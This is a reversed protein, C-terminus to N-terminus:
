HLIGAMAAAGLAAAVAGILGAILAEWRKGPKSELGEIKEGQKTIEGTMTQISNTMKEISISLKNIEKVTEELADLRKNQRHNEDDIRNRESEIRKSFEDHEQRTIFETDAM